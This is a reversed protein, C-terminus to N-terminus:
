DGSELRSILALLATRRMVLGEPEVADEFLAADAVALVRGKGIRCEALIGSSELMCAANTGDAGESADGLADGRMGMGRNGRPANSDGSIGLLRFHGPLNVPLVSKAFPATREGPQVSPDYRLELGWHALIPSLMAMAQPRRPDGLTYRSPQTLMPDVFLLLRGGARVWSDLALNEQPSLARPQAMILLSDFPLPLQGQADVLRDLPVVEGQEALADGAWSRPAGSALLDRIDDGEAWLIPLSTSLGIRRGHLAPDPAKHCGPLSLLLLAGALRLFLHLPRKSRTSRRPGPATSSM